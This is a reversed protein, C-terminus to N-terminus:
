FRRGGRRSGPRRSASAPRCAPRRSRHSLSPTGSRPTAAYGRSRPGCPSPAIRTSALASLPQYAQLLPLSGLGDNSLRAHGKQRQEVRRRGSEHGGDDGCRDRLRLSAADAAVSGREPPNRSMTPRGAVASRGDRIDAIQGCAGLSLGVKCTALIGGVCGLGVGSMAVSGGDCTRSSAQAM